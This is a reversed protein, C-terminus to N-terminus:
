HPLLSFLIPSHLSNPAAVQAYVTSSFVVLKSEVCESAGRELVRRAEDGEVHAEPQQEKGRCDVILGAAM